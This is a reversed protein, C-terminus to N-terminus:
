FSELYSIILGFLVILFILLSFIPWVVHFYFWVAKYFERRVHTAHAFNMDHAEQPKGQRCKCAAAKILM